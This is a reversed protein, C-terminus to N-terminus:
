IANIFKAYAYVIRTAVDTDVFADKSVLYSNPSYRYEDDGDKFIFKGCENSVEISPLDTEWLQGAYEITDLMAQLIMSHIGKAANETNYYGIIQRRMAEVLSMVTYIYSAVEDRVVELSEPEYSRKTTRMVTLHGGIYTVFYCNVSDRFSIRAFPMKFSTELIVFSKSPHAEPKSYWMGVKIAKELVKVPVAAYIETIPYFEM